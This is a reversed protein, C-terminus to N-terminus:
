RWCVLGVVVAGAAGAQARRAPAGHHAGTRHRHGACAHTLTSTQKLARCWQTPGNLARQSLTMGERSIWRARPLVQEPRAALAQQQAQPPPYLTPGAAAHPPQQQQQQQPRQHHHHQQQTAAGPCSGTPPPPAPPLTRAHTSGARMCAQMPITCEAVCLHVYVARCGGDALEQTAHTRELEAQRERLWRAQKDEQASRVARLRAEQQADAMSPQWPKLLLSPRSPRSRAGDRLARKLGGEEEEGSCPM